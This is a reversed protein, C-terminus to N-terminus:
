NILDTLTRRIVLGEAENISYITNPVNKYEKENKKILDTQSKVLEDDIYSNATQANRLKINITSNAFVKADHVSGPWMCEVDMFYCKYDCVAQVSLSFYQERTLPRRIPIHTDDICGFAQTMRFKSEFESVKNRMETQNRPLFLYKPGLYKSIAKCVLIIVASATCVAIGFTNATM